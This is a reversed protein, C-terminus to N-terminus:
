HIQIKLRGVGLSGQVRGTSARLDAEIKELSPVQIPAFEQSPVYSPMLTSIDSVSAACMIEETGRNDLILEFNGDSKDITQDPIEVAQNGAIMRDPQFRNPYIRVISGKADKYFCYPFGSRSLSMRAVLRDNLKYSRDRATVYVSIQEPVTEIKPVAPGKDGTPIAAMRVKGSMLSRYLEFNINNGPVLGKDTQYRTIASRFPDSMKGDLPGHYYDNGTLASQITKVRDEYSLQDYWDQLQKSVEPNTDEIELCQWYPVKSWKGMLEIAGLEVLTRVAQGSSEAANMNFEFHIGAKAIKGGISAGKGNQTVTITNTAYAGPILTRSKLLGLHLELTVASVSRDRAAGIDIVGTTIGGSQKGTQVSDDVQSISGRIYVTPLPVESGINAKESLHTVTDNVGVQNSSEWDVYTFAQSTQSMRNIATMLMDKVGLQLKGTSDPINTSTLVLGRVHNDALLRDMCRLSETFSTMNRIPQASPAMQYPVKDPEPLTGGCGANIVLSLLLVSRVIKQHPM